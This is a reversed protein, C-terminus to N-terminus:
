RAGHRENRWIVFLGIASALAGVALVLRAGGSQFAAPQEGAWFWGAVSLVLVAVMLLSIAIRISAHLPDM